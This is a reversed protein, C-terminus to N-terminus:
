LPQSSKSSSWGWSASARLLLWGNAMASQLCVRQSAMNQLLLGAVFSIICQSLFFKYASNKLRILDQFVPLHFRSNSYTQVSRHGGWWVDLPSIYFCLCINSVVRTKSHYGVRGEPLRTPRSCAFRAFVPASPTNPHDVTSPGDRPPSFIIIIPFSRPGHCTWCGPLCPSNCPAHTLLSSISLASLESISGAIGRSRSHGRSRLLAWQIYIFKTVSM